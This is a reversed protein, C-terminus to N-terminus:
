RSSVARAMAPPWNIQLFESGQREFDSAGLQNPKGAYSPFDRITHQEKRITKRDGERNIDPHHFREPLEIKRAPSFHTQFPHVLEGFFMKPRLAAIRLLIQKM